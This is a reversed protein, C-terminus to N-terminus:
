KYALLTADDTTTHIITKCVRCQYDIRQPKTTVGMFFALFTGWVGFVALESVMLHGVGHGCRCRADTSSM